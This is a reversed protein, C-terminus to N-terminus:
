AGASRERRTSRAVFGAGCGLFLTGGILYLTTSEAGGAPREEARGDAVSAASAGSASPRPGRAVASGASTGSATSAGSAGSRTAATPTMFDATVHATPVFWLGALLAGAVIIIPSSRCTASVSYRDGQSVPSNVTGLSTLSLRPDRSLWLRFSGYGGDWPCKESM